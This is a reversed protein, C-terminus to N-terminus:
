MDRFLGATNLASLVASLGTPDPLPAPNDLRVVPAALGDTAAPGGAQPQAMQIPGIDSPKIPIPSEQWNWFRTLDVKEAANFRGLVAEAFVGGTPLPVMTDEANSADLSFGEAQMWAAREAPDRFMWKFGLYNGTVAVPRPDLRPVLREQGYTMHAMARSLEMPDSALWIAQSYFLANESLHQVLRDHNDDPVVDTTVTVVPVTVTPKGVQALALRHRELLRHTHALLDAAAERVLHLEARAEDASALWADRPRDTTTAGLEATLNARVEAVAEEDEPTRPSLSAALDDVRTQWLRIADALGEDSTQPEVSARPLKITTFRTEFPELVELVNSALPPALPGGDRPPPALLLDVNIEPRAQGDVKGALTLRLRVPGRLWEEARYILRIDQLDELRLLAFDREQGAGPQWLVRDDGFRMGLSVGPLEVDAGDAPLLELRLLRAAEIVGDRGSLRSRQTPRAWGEILKQIPTAGGTATLAQLAAERAPRDEDSALALADVAERVAELTAGEPHWEVLPAYRWLISRFREITSSNNFNMPKMPVFVVRDYDLVQTRVRYAQVVEYYQVSLAHMHNYNTIVRTTAVEQESEFTEQM